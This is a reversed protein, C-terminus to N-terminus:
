LKVRNTRHAARNSSRSSASAASDLAALNSDAGEPDPPPPPPPPISGVGSCVQPGNTRQYNKARSSTQTTPSVGCSRGQAGSGTDAAGQHAGAVVREVLEALQFGV